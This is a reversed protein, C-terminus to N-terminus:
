QKEGELKKIEQIVELTVTRLERWCQLAKNAEDYYIEKGTGRANDLYRVFNEDLEHIKAITRTREEQTM